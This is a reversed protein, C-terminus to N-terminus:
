IGMGERMKQFLGTLVEGMQGEFIAVLAIVVIIILIIAIINTEGRNNKIFEMIKRKM